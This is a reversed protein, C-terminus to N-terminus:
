DIDLGKMNRWHLSRSHLNLQNQSLNCSQCPQRRIECKRGNYAPRKNASSAQRWTVLRYRKGLKLQFPSEAFDCMVSLDCHVVVIPLAKADTILVQM